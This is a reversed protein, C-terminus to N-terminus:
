ISRLHLFARLGVDSAYLYNELMSTNLANGAVDCLQVPVPPRLGLCQGAM